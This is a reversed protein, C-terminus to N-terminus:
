ETRKAVILPPPAVASAAVVAVAATLRSGHVTLPVPRLLVHLLVYERRTILGMCIVRLTLFANRRCTSTAM